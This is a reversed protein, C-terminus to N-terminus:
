QLTSCDAMELLLGGDGAVVGILCSVWCVGREIVNDILRDPVQLCEVAM